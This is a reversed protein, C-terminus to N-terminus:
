MCAHMCVYMYMYIYVYMVCACVCIIHWSFLTEKFSLVTGLSYSVANILRACIYIYTYM